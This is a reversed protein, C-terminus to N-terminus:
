RAARTATAEIVFQEFLPRMEIRLLEAGTVTRIVVGYTAQDVEVEGFVARLPLETRRGDSTRFVLAGDTSVTIANIGLAAAAPGARGRAGKEGRKGVGALLQWGDGPCPGPNDTRAIFSSGGLAVIDFALYSADSDYTGRIRPMGPLGRGRLVDTVGSLTALRLIQDRRLQRQLLYLSVL